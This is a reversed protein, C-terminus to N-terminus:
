VEGCQQKMSAIRELDHLSERKVIDVRQLLHEWVHISPNAMDGTSELSSHNSEEATGLSMHDLLDILSKVNEESYQNSDQSYSEIIQRLFDAMESARSIQNKLLTETETLQQM